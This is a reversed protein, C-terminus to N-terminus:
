VAESRPQTRTAPAVLTALQAAVITAVALRAPQKEAEDRVEASMVGMCGSPNVLPAAIAGPATGDASVIQLVGTRFASATVNDAEKPITGIRALINPGYGHEAVATLERGDPDAVWLMVGSAALAGAARELLSPLSSIDSARALDRCVGALLELDPASGEAVAAPEPPPDPVAVPTPPPAFQLPLSELEAVPDLDILAARAPVAAQVSHGELRPAPTLLVLALLALAAGGAASMWLMRGVSVQRAVSDQREVYRTQELATIIEETRELGGAFILDSALLKQETSAYDRASQNLREFEQLAALAGDLGVRGLATTAATRLGTLSERLTSTLAAVKPIWVQEDQGISVYGQQAARLDFAQRVASSLRTDLARAEDAIRAARAGLTWYFYAASLIAIVALLALAVRVARRRM